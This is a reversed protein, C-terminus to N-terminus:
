PFALRGKRAPNSGGATLEATLRIDDRPATGSCRQRKFRRLARSRQRLARRERRERPCPLPGSRPTCPPRGAPPGPVFPPGLGAPPPVAGCPGAMKHGGGRGARGERLDGGEVCIYGGAGRDSQDNGVGLRRRAGEGERAFYAFSSGSATNRNAAMWGRASERQGRGRRWGVSTPTTVQM